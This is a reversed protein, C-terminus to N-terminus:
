SANKLNLNFLNKVNSRIEETKESREEETLGDSSLRLVQGEIVKAHLMELVRNMGLNGNPDLNDNPDPVRGSVCLTQEPANSKRDLNLGMAELIGLAKLSKPDPNFKRRGIIKSLNIHSSRAPNEPNNEGITKCIFGSVFGVFNDESIQLNVAAAKIDGRMEEDIKYIEFLHNLDHKQPKTQPQSYEYRKSM